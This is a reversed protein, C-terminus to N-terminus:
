AHRRRTRELLATMYLQENGACQQLQSTRQLAIVVREWRRTTVRCLWSPHRVVHPLRKASVPEEELLRLGRRHECCPYATIPGVRPSDKGTTVIGERRQHIILLM